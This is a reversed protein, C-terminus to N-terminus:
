SKTLIYDAFYKKSDLFQHSIKLGSNEILKGLIEDNYKRSIETHILENEKFDFSEDREKIFVTQKKKSKLFSKLLAPLRPVAFSTFRHRVQLVDLLCTLQSM